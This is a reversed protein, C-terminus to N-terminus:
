LFIWRLVFNCISILITAVVLNGIGKIEFSPILKDTIWLLFANIVLVFLGFTLIIFPISLIVLIRHLLFNIVAYVVAVIIATGFSKVYVGPMLQAILFVALSLFLIYLFISLM